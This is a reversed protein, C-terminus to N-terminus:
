DTGCFGALHKDIAVVGILRGDEDVVPVRRSPTALAHDRATAAPTAPSVM